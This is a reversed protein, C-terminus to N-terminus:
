RAHAFMARMRCLFVTPLSPDLGEDEIIEIVKGFDALGAHDHTPAHFFAQAELGAVCVAIRDVVPLHQQDTAIDTGGKADDGGIAIVIEGVQLGLAHAVM